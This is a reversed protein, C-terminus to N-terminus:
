RKFAAVFEARGLSLTWIKAAAKIIKAQVLPMIEAIYAGFKQM